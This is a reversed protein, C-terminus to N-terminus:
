LNNTMKHIHFLRFSDVFWFPHLSASVRSLNSHWYNIPKLAVCKYYNFLLFLKIHNVQFHEITNLAEELLLHNHQEQPTKTACLVVDIVCAALTM